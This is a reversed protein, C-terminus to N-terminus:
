FTLDEINIAEGNLHIEYHLHPGTSHGTNGVSAIVEGRRIRQGKEVFIRSNHAYQTIVGYGHNISVLMGYGPAHDAYIVIGSETARVPTGKPAAIDLGKHLSYKQTHPAIRYGFRSVVRGDNLPLVTSLSELLYRRALFWQRLRVEDPQPTRSVTYNPYLQQSSPYLDQQITFEGCSVLTFIFSMFVLMKSLTITVSKIKTKHVFSEYFYLIHIVQM